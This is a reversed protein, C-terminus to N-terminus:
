PRGAQVRELYGRSAAHCWAVALADALDTPQGCVTPGLLREVMSRVQAKSARGNGTVAKKVTAPSYPAVAIGAAALGALIVGRAHSLLLAARADAGHFPAEVAASEPGLRAVVASFETALRDLRRELPIGPRGLRIV